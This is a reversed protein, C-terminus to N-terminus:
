GEGKKPMRMVEGLPRGNQVAMFLRTMHTAADGLVVPQDEPVVRTAVTALYGSIMMQFLGFIVQRAGEDGEGHFEQLKEVIPGTCEMIPKAIGVVEALPDEAELAAIIPNMPDLPPNM